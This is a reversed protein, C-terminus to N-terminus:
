ARQERAAGRRPETVSAVMTRVQDASLEFDVRELELQACVSALHADYRELQGDDCRCRATGHYGCPCPPATAIVCWPRAPYATAATSVDVGGRPGRVCLWSQGERLVCRVAELTHRRFEPVEDLLMVGGHALSLEGPRPRQGGGVLAATSCTHHPARFPRPRHLRAHNGHSLWLRAHDLSNLGAGHWLWAHEVHEQAGDEFPPLLWAVRRAFAVRGTGHRGVLLVRRGRTAALQGMLDAAQAATRITTTM